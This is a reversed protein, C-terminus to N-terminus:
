TREYVDELREIDDEGLYSGTQVEILEVPILGFNELRHVAGQPVHVHQEPRVARVNDGVTVTAEGSVVVWHESRYRHRQLSLRGGPVVTIRKVQFGSGGDTVRYSGWPRQVDVGTDAQPRRRIRLQEVLAKVGAAAARDAVLIADHTCVIALDRQGVVSVLPGCTAVYCRESDLLEVEGKSVNGMVDHQGLEWIANWSGVDSWGCSLEVVAARKTHEMVAYDLSIARADAYSPGLVAVGGSRVRARVAAEIAGLSPEFRRYENVLVDARFLFNGSNWLMGRSVYEAADVLCPKERFRLVSWLGDAVVEGAEIYGYATEASSPRVGFVVLRGALAAPLACAIADSFAEDDRVFHDSPLVLALAEPDDECIALCAAAISPGTDRRVPELLIDGQIGVEAMQRAALYRHTANTMVLPRGFDAGRAIALQFTSRKGFLDSFQKPMADRSAPWLRSGAGGSMIVPRVSAINAKM